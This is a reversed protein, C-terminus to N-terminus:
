QGAPQSRGIGYYTISQAAMDKPPLANRGDIVLRIGKERLFTPTLANIILQHDTALVIAQAGNLAEELSNVTSRKPVFPDFIRIRVGLKKLLRAIKLAPSNRTDAIDRKYALGLLAVTTDSPNLQLTQLGQQLLDVTYQPMHNNIRRALKLFRHNFGARKARDIMYYPDVSICHGGVGCSPYHPLFAFPKTAAGAIVNTSDIGLAAFSQAMENIFAINVDRFTNELIKVAEAERVTNMVKVPAELVSEYFERAQSVGNASYGGLVRPVNRVSWKKDGPNIREPCHVVSLAPGTKVTVDLPLNSRQQLLPIVVEDTVGPNITSEISLVQDPRLYPLLSAIASELPKLDPLNGTTVPTPVAIIIIDAEAAVKPDTSATIPHQRLQAALAEDQPIPSKGQNILKVKKRDIDFGVVQWGKSQALVALPLGVYGLGVIVARKQM